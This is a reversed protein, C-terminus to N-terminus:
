RGSLSVQSVKGSWDKKLITYGKGGYSNERVNFFFTKTEKHKKNKKM